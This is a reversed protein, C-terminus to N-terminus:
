HDTSNLASGLKFAYDYNQPDLAAASQLHPIAHAADEALWYAVGLHYQAVAYKPDLDLAKQFRQIAEERRNLVALLFGAQDQLRASQPDAAAAQEYAELAGAADGKAILAAARAELDPVSDAGAALGGILTLLAVLRM